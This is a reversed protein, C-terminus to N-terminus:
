WTLLELEEVETAQNVKVCLENRYKTINRNKHQFAESIVKLFQTKDLFLREAVGDKYATWEMRDILGETFLALTGTFNAQAEMDFSFYYAVSNVTAEFQGLIEEKCKSSFEKIKQQKFADLWAEKLKINAPIAHKDENWYGIFQELTGPDVSIFFDVNPIMDPYLQLICDELIM